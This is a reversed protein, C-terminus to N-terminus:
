IKLTVCNGTSLLSLDTCTHLVRLEVFEALISVGTFYFLNESDPDQTADDDDDNELQADSRATVTPQATTNNGFCFGPARLNFIYRVCVLCLFLM